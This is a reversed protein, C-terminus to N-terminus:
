ASTVAGGFGNRHIKIGLAAFAVAHATERQDEPCPLSVLYGNDAKFQVTGHEIEAPPQIGWVTFSRFPNDFNGPEVGDEDPWPFRFRYAELNALVDADGDPEVDGVQDARLYLLDECTGVKVREGSIKSKMYEGMRTVESDPGTRLPGTVLVMVSSTCCTLLM